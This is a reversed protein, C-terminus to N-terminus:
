EIKLKDILFDIEVDDKDIEHTGDFIKIAFQKDADFKRYFELISKCTKETLKYDFLNDANGMAVFLARPCVLAAVEATTFRYQANQYSWDEWSYEFCDCVWSCSYCAKIRTDIAALFLAYMGGYSMGAVGIRNENIKENIIFRNIAGITFYLELATVTGGLQRLKGDTEARNRPNGYKETDWLLLQPAFVNANRDTIRRVLHNYNASDLHIGSM